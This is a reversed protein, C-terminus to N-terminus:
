QKRSIEDWQKAIEPDPTGMLLNIHAKEPSYGADHWKIADKLEINRLKWDGAYGPSSFGEKIWKQAEEPNFDNAHWYCAMSPEIGAKSWREAESDSIGFLIYDINGRYRGFCMNIDQVQAAFIQPLRITNLLLKLYFGSDKNFSDDGVKELYYYTLNIGNQTSILHQRYRDAEQEFKFHDCYYVLGKIFHDRAYSQCGLCSVLYKVNEPDKSFDKEAFIAKMGKSMNLLDQKCIEAIKFTEEAEATLPGTGPKHIIPNNKWIEQAWRGLKDLIAKTMDAKEPNFQTSNLQRLINLFVFRGQFGSYLNNLFSHTIGINELLIKDM